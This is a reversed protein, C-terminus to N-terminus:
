NDIDAKGGLITKARGVVDGVTFPRVMLFYFGLGKFDVQSAQYASACILIPAKQSMEKLLELAPPDLSYGMADFIILRPFTENTRLLRLADELSLLGQVEYGEEILEARILARSPWENSILMIPELM